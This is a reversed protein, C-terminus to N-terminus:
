ISESPWGMPVCLVPCPLLRVVKDVTGGFFIEDIQGKGRSGYGGMLILDTQLERAKIAIEQFPSGYSVITDKVLGDSDWFFSNKECVEIRKCCLRFFRCAGAGFINGNQIYRWTEM